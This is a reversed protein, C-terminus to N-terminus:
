FWGIVMPYRPHARAGRRLYIGAIATSRAHGLVVQGAARSEALVDPLLRSFASGCMPWASAASAVVVTRGRRELRGKWQRLACAAPLRRLLPCSVPAFLLMGALVFAGFQTWLGPSSMGLLVLGAAGVLVCVGATAAALLFAVFLAGFLVRAPRRSRCPVTMAAAGEWVVDGAAAGVMTTMLFLFVPWRWARLVRSSTGDVSYAKAARWAIRLAQRSSTLTQM